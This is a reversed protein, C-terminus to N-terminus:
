DWINQIIYKLLNKDNEDINLCQFIKEVLKDNISEWNKLSNIYKKIRGKVIKDDPLDLGINKEWSMCKRLNQVCKNYSFEIPARNNMIEEFHIVGYFPSDILDIDNNKLYFDYKLENNLQILKNEDFPDLWLSSIFGLAYSYDKSKLDFNNNLLCNVCEYLLVKKAFDLNAYDLNM